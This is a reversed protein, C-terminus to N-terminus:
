STKLKSIKLFLKKIGVGITILIAIGVFDGFLSGFFVEWMFFDQTEYSYFFFFLSLVYLYWRSLLWKFYEKM